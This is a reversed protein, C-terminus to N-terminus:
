KGRTHVGKAMQSAWKKDRNKHCGLCAFDVTIFGRAFTKKKGKVEETYFMSADPSTNIRFLHTRM